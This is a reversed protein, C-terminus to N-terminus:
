KCTDLDRRAIPRSAKGPGAESMAFDYINDRYKLRLEYRYGTRPRLLTGVSTASSGGFFSSTDFTAVIYALRDPPIGVAVSPQDLAVTGRYDTRCSADVQHVHLSGRAKDLESRVVLNAPFDSPYSKLGSCAALVLAASAGAIARKM